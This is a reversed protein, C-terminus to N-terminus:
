KNNCVMKCTTSTTEDTNSIIKNFIALYMNTNNNYYTHVYIASVYNSLDMWTILLKM